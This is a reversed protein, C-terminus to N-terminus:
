EWGDVKLTKGVKLDCLEYLENDLIEEEEETLKEKNKM